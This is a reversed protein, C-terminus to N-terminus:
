SLISASAVVAILTALALILPRSRTAPLLVSPTLLQAAMLLPATAGVPPVHARRTPRVRSDTTPEKIPKSTGTSSVARHGTGQM